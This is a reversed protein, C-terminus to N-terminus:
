NKLGTLLLVHIELNALGMCKGIIVCKLKGNQKTIIAMIKPYVLIKKRKQQKIIKKKKNKKKKKIKPNLHLDQIIM